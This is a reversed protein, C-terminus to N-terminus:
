NHPDNCFGSSVGLPFEIGSDTLAAVLEASKWLPEDDDVESCEGLHLSAGNEHFRDTYFVLNSQPLGLTALQSVIEKVRPWSASASPDALGAEPSEYRVEVFGPIFYSVEVSEDDGLPVTALRNRFAVVDATPMSVKAVFGDLYWSLEASSPDPVARLAEWDVADSKDPDWINRDPGHRLEQLMMGLPAGNARSLALWYDVEGSMAEASFGNPYAILLLNDQGYAIKFTADRGALLEDAEAVIAQIDSDVLEDVVVWVTAGFVGDVSSSVETVTAIDSLRERLPEESVDPQVFWRGCGTLALLVLLAAIGAGTRKM